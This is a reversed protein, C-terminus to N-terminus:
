RCVFASATLRHASRRDPRDDHLAQGTADVRCWVRGVLALRMRPASPQPGRAGLVMAPRLDGAGAVVGAVRRDYPRASPQLAEDEGIVM